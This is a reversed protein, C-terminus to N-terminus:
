ANPQRRRVQPGARRLDRDGEVARAPGRRAVPHRHLGDRLVGGALAHLELAAARGVHALGPRRGRARPRVPAQRVDERRGQRPEAPGGRGGPRDVPGRRGARLPRRLQRVDDADARRQRPDAGRRGPAGQDGLAVAPPGPRGLPGPRRARADRRAPPPDRRPQLGDPVAGRRALPDLERDLLRLGLGGERRDRHRGRRRRVALGRGARPRGHPAPRAAQGLPRQRGHRDRRAAPRARRPDAAAPGGLPPTHTSTGRTAANQAGDRRRRFRHTEPNTTAPVSRAVGLSM